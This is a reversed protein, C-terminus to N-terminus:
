CAAKASNGTAADQSAQLLLAEAQAYTNTSNQAVLPASVVALMQSLELAPVIGLCGLIVPLFLKKVNFLILM